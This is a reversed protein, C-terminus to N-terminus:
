ILKGMSEMVDVMVSKGRGRSFSSKEDIQLLLAWWLVAMTAAARWIMGALLLAAVEVVTATLLWTHWLPWVVVTAETGAIAVSYFLFVVTKSFRTGWHTQPKQTALRHCQIPFPQGNGPLTSSLDCMPIAKCSNLLIELFVNGWPAIVREVNSFCLLNTLSLLIITSGSWRSLNRKQEQHYTLYLNTM